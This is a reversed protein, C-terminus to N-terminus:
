FTLALPHLLTAGYIFLFPLLEHIAETGNDGISGAATIDTPKPRSLRQADCVRARACACICVCVCLRVIRSLIKRKIKNVSREKELIAYSTAIFTSHM